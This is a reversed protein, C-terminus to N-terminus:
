LEAVKSKKKWSHHLLILIDDKGERSIIQSVPLGLELRGQLVIGPVNLHFYRCWLSDYNMLIM